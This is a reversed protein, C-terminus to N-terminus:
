RFLAILDISTEVEWNAKLEDLPVLAIKEAQRLGVLSGTDWRGNQNSDLVVRLSYKGPSLLGLSISRPQNGIILEDAISIQNADLVQVLYQKASDSTQIAVLIGGFDEPKGVKIQLRLSDTTNGYFDKVSGPPITLRYTAGAVWNGHLLLRRPFLSDSRFYLTDSPPLSDVLPLIGGANTEGPPRSFDLVLPRGPKLEERYIGGPVAKELQLFAPLPAPGPKVELSDQFGTPANLYLTWTQSLPTFWIKLTDGAREQFIKPGEPGTLATVLDPAQNFLVRLLGGTKADVSVVRFAPKEQFVQLVFSDRRTSDLVLLADPFGIRENPLDFKYNFNVDELAFLSYTDRRINELRFRGDKNTIAVYLPRQTRVATDGRAGAYLMVRIKELLKGGDADIVKGALSLSDIFAGTSFVFRLDQAPNRETLDKVGEGFNLTYTVGPRLIERPDWNLVVSRKKITLEPRYQSPPSIILQNLMDDLQVWEDFTLVLDQKLFNTQFFPTSLATDLRPAQEDRPGGTPTTPTACSPLAVLWVLLALGSLLHFIDRGAM